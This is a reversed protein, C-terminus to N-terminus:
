PPEEGDPAYPQSTVLGCDSFTRSPLHSLIDWTVCRTEPVSLSSGPRSGGLMATKPERDRSVRPGGIGCGVRPGEEGEEWCRM